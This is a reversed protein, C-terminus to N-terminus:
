KVALPLIKCFTESIALLIFNAKFSNLSYQSSKIPYAVILTVVVM